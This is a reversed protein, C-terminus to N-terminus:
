LRRRLWRAATWLLSLGVLTALPAAVAMLVFLYRPATVAASSQIMGALSAALVSVLFTLLFLSGLGFQFRRRRRPTEPSRSM